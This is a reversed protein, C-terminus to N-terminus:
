WIYSALLDWVLDEVCEEYPSNWRPMHSYLHMEQKREEVTIIKQTVKESEKNELFLPIWYRGYDYIQLLGDSTDIAFRDSLFYKKADGYGLYEYPNPGDKYGGSQIPCYYKDAEIEGVFHGQRTTYIHKEGAIEVEDGVDVGYEFDIMFFRPAGYFDYLIEVEYSILLGLELPEAFIEETLTSIRAIHEQETYDSIWEYSMRQESWDGDKVIENPVEACSFTFLLACVSFLIAIIKSVIKKM